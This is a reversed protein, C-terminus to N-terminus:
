LRPLPDPVRLALRQVVSHIVRRLWKGSIGATLPYVPVIRNTHLQRQELPEWEPNSMTLKGLYQDVKGSLVIPQGPKLRNAIYLNLIMIFIFVLWVASGLGFKSLVMKWFVPSYGLNIFWLWDPYFAAGTWLLLLVFVILAIGIIIKKNM